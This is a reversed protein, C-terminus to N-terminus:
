RRSYGKHRKSKNRKKNRKKTRKRTKKKQKMRSGGEFEPEDTLASLKDTKYLKSSALLQTLKGLEQEIETLDDLDVIVYKGLLPHNEVLSQIDNLLFMLKPLFIGKIVQLSENISRLKESLDEPSVIVSDIVSKIKSLELGIQTGFESYRKRQIELEAAAMGAHYHNMWIKDRFYLESIIPVENKIGMLDILKTDQSVLRTLESKLELIKSIDPSEYLSKLYPKMNKKTEDDLNSKVVVHYLKEIYNKLEIDSMNEFKRRDNIPKPNTTIFLALYFNRYAEFKAQLELGSRTAESYTHQAKRTTEIRRRTKEDTSEPVREQVSGNPNKKLLTNILDASMHVNVGPIESDVDRANEIVGKQLQLEKYNYKSIVRGYQDTKYVNVVLYKLPAQTDVKSQVASETFAGYSIKDLEVNAAAYAAAKSENDDLGMLHSDDKSHYDYSFELAYYEGNPMQVFCHKVTEPKDLNFSLGSYHTFIIPISGTYQTPGSVSYQKLLPAPDMFQYEGIIIQQKKTMVRLRYDEYDEEEDEYYEEEEEEEEEPDHVYLYPNKPRKETDEIFPNKRKSSPPPVDRPQPPPPPPPQGWLLGTLWGSM